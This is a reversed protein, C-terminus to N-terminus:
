GRIYDVYLYAPVTSAANLIVNGSGATRVLTASFTKDETADATYEVELVLRPERNVVDLDLTETVLINGSVTDERVRLTIDDAAVSSNVRVSWTVKYTRGIVVPATVSQVQTETTTINGSNSIEIDTAIREGPVRGAIITEGAAPM